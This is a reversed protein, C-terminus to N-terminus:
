FLKYDNYKYYLYDIQVSTYEIFDTQIRFFRNTNSLIPKSVILDPQIRYFRNTDSLIPIYGIFNTQIQYFRKTDLFILKILPKDSLIPNYGIFDPQM